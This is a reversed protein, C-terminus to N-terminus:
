EDEEEEDDIDELEALPYSLICAIGSIQDLQEGSSHLSSFILSEGGSGRVTEVMSIYKKRTQINNSRFLTDTILLTSVAGRNVAEEVHRPGYWARAEDDNMTKFFKDLIITERGYKTDALQRQVDANKLIEELAHIAGSSSHTVLFKEKSKIFPKDGDTVARQFMYDYYSKATFGPSAILIAKLKDITLNRRMTTYVTEYFKQLAKEYGSNDGRKKRPLSQEVRQRLVTMNETLLCINALGEQMVVAGVEAKNEPDVAKDVVELSILDWEQKFLRFNRNLEVALTHYTGASVDETDETVPGNIRLSGGAPDFEIKTIRLRLKLLKRTSQGKAVGDKNVKTIKRMSKAEIEDGEQILNYTYWLDESDEPCLTIDGSQDKELSKRILKM